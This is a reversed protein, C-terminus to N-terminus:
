HLSAPAGRAPMITVDANNGLLEETRQQLHDIVDQVEGMTRTPDFELYIEVYDRTGAM